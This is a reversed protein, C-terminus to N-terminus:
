KIYPNPDAPLNLSNLYEDSRKFNKEEIEKKTYKKKM